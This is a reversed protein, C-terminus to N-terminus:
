PHTNVRLDGFDPQYRACIREINKLFDGSATKNSILLRHLFAEDQAVKMGIKLCFMSAHHINKFEMMKLEDEFRLCEVPSSYLVFDKFAERTERDEEGNILIRYGVIMAFAFLVPRWITMCM